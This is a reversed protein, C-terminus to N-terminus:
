ILRVLIAVAAALVLTWCPLRKQRAPQWGQRCMWVIYAALVALALVVGVMSRQVPFVTWVLAMANYAVHLMICPTLNQVSLMTMGLLCGVAFQAPFGAMSTHMGAFIAATLFVGTMGWGDAMLSRQVGGRFFCEETVAPVIVLALIGLVWELGDSPMPLTAPSSSLWQQVASTVLPLVYQAAVGVLMALAAAFMNIGKEPERVVDRIVPRMLLAPMGWALMQRLCMLTYAHAATDGGMFPAALRLAASIAAALLIAYAARRIM